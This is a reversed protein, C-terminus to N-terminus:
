TAHGCEGRASRRPYYAAGRKPDVFPPIWHIDILKLALRDMSKILLMDLKAQPFAHSHQHIISNLPSGMHVLNELSDENRM